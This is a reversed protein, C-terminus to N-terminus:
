GTLDAYRLRKGEFNQVISTMQDITDQARINQRGMFEAVYRGLHKGSMWHYVGMYGRKLGAWFSEIGNTTCDERVYQGWSHNVWEHEYDMGRYELAGDTYVITGKEVHEAIFQQLTEEDAIDVAQAIVRKTHREKIGVVAMKGLRWFEYLRKNRHKNEETGGIYTEDVEVVGTFLHEQGELRLAERIRHLLYWATRQTVSLDRHLKMSSIGKLTTAFLYVAIAWMKYGLNSCAMVTGIKASFYRRCDRCRHPMTKHTTKENVNTSGCRPCAMGDPWRTHIFWKEATEDDPFMQFLQILSMGKRQHMGPARTAM